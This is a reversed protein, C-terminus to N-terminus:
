DIKEQSDPESAEEDEGSYTGGQHNLEVRDPRIVICPSSTAELRELCRVLAQTQESLAIVIKSVIEVMEPSPPTPKNVFKCNSISIPTNEM